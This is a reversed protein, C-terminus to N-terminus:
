QILGAARYFSKPLWVNTPLPTPRSLFLPAMDDPTYHAYGCGVPTCLFKLDPRSRAFDLFKTVHKYIEATPLIGLCKQADKTPIAYSQGRLGEGTGYIAGFKKVAWLAAGKGHRGARNSGFVFISGPPLDTICPPTINM